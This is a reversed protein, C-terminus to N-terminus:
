CKIFMNANFNNMLKMLGKECLWVIFYIIIIIFCIIDVIHILHSHGNMIRKVNFRLLLKVYVNFKSLLYDMKMAQWRSYQVTIFVRYRTKSKSRIFISLFFFCYIFFYQTLRYIKCLFQSFYRAILWCFRNSYFPNYFPYLYFQNKNSQKGWEVSSNTLESWLSNKRRHKWTIIVDHSSIM